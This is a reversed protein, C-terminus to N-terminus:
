QLHRDQQDEAVAVERGQRVHKLQEPEQRVRLECHKGTGRVHAYRPSGAFHERQDCREEVSASRRRAVADEEHSAAATRSINTARPSRFQTSILYTIPDRRGSSQRFERDLYCTATRQFTTERSGPRGRPPGKRHLHGEAQALAPPDRRVSRAAVVAAGALLFGRRSAFRPRDAGSM